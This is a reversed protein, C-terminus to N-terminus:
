LMLQNKEFMDLLGGLHVSIFPFSNAVDITGYNGVSNIGAISDHQDLVVQYDANTLGRGM